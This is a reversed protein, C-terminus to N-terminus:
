LGLVANTPSPQDKENRVIREINKTSLFWLADMDGKWGLRLAVMEYLDTNPEYDEEYLKLVRTRPEESGVKQKKVITVTIM